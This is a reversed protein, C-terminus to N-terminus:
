LENLVEDLDRTQVKGTRVAKAEKVRETIMEKFAKEKATLEKNSSISSKTVRAFDLSKVYEVFLLAQKSSDDITITYPM